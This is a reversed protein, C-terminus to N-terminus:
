AGKFEISELIQRFIYTYRRNTRWDRGLPQLVTYVRGNGGKFVYARVERNLEGMPQWDVWTRAELGNGLKITRMREAEDYDKRMERIVTEPDTKAGDDIITFSWRYQDLSSRPDQASHIFVGSGEEEPKPWASPVSLKFSKLEHRTTALMPHTDRWAGVGWAAAFVGAAVAAVAFKVRRNM